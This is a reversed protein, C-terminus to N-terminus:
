GRKGRGKAPAKKRGLGLQKAAESRAASYLPAVIPHDASLGWKARYEDPSLDHVGNLHKRLTKLKRGCELCAVYNNKVSQRIPVAPEAPPAEVPGGLGELAKAISGILGPLNSKPLSNKEVYAAVIRATFELKETM